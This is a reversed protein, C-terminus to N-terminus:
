RPDSFYREHDTQVRIWRDKRTDSPPGTFLMEWCCELTNALAQIQDFRTLTVSNIVISEFHHSISNQGSGNVSSTLEADETWYFRFHECQAGQELPLMESGTSDLKHELWLGVPEGHIRSLKAIRQWLAM